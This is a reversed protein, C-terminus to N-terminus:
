LANKTTQHIFICSKFMFRMSKANLDMCVLFIKGLNATSSTFTKTKFCLFKLNFLARFTLLNLASIQLIGSGSVSMNDSKQNRGVSICLTPVHNTTHKESAFAGYCPTLLM